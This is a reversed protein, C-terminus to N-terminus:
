KIPKATGLKILKEALERLQADAKASAEAMKGSLVDMQKSLKDMDVSLNPMSASVERMEKDLASMKTNLARMERDILQQEKEIQEKEADTLDAAQRAGLVGQRAGLLGQQAGIAGQRAGVEGQKAGVIGQQAGILGQKAGVIGQQAGIEAVPKVIATAQEISVTDRVEYTRDGLRFWLGPGDHRYREGDFNGSEFTGDKETLVLRYEFGSGPTRMKPARAEQEAVLATAPRAVLELPLLGALAVAALAWGALRHALTPAVLNLMGIRRKLSSFSHAAGSASVGGPLPAVGLTVLLRGYDHPEADLVRLVAADCAAERAIVYERAVLHALPHFFFLREALSPVLGLWLDGRRVHQLEHCIAMRQQLATLSSWRCSPLIVVPRMLGTVLPADIEDSLRVEPPTKLGSRESLEQVLNALGANAPHTRARLSSVRRWQGVTIAAVVVLGGLWIVALAARWPLTGFVPGEIVQTTALTATAPASLVSTAASAPPLIPVAVPEISSLGVLLKLSVLWWLTCRAAAPLRGIAICLALVGLALVGGAISAGSLADFVVELSPATM